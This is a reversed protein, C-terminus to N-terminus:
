GAVTSTAAGGAAAAAAELDCESIHITAVSDPTDPPAVDSVELLLQGSFTRARWAHSSLADYEANQSAHLTRVPREGGAHDVFFLKAPYRARNAVVLKLPVGDGRSALGEQPAPCRRLPPPAEPASGVIDDSPARPQEAPHDPPDCLARRGDALHACCELGVGGSGSGGGGGAADDTSGSGGGGGSSGDGDGGGGGCGAACSCSSGDDFHLAAVRRRRQVPRPQTEFAVNLSSFAELSPKLNHLEPDTQRLRQAIAGQKPDTEGRLKRAMWADYEATLRADHEPDFKRAAFAPGRMVTGVASVNLLMPGGLTHWGLQAWYDNPDDFKAHPWDLYRFNHNIISHRYRSHMAVTALYVEDPLFRREFIRTWRHAEPDHVLYKVFDASLIVWQSGSFYQEGPAPKPAQYPVRGYVVPGSRGFCCPRAPTIRLASTNVTVFGFGGCEIATYQGLIDHMYQRFDSAQAHEARLFQRGKFRALFEVMEANTRLALDADSLNIFFDFDIRDAFSAMADLMTSIMTFAGWQVLRRTKMIHVNPYDKAYELLQTHMTANAKLDVHVLFLQSPHYFATILRRVVGFANERAAMIFYVIRPDETHARPAVTVHYLPDPYLSIQGRHGQEEDAIARQLAQQCRQNFSAMKPQTSIPQDEHDYLEFHHSTDVIKQNGQADVVAARRAGDENGLARAPLLLLVLFLACTAPRFLCCSPRM